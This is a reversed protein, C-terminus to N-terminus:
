HACARNREEPTRGGAATVDSHSLWADESTAPPPPLAASACRSPRQLLSSLLSPPFSGSTHGVPPEAAGAGRRRGWPHPRPLRLASRNARQQPSPSSQGRRASRPSHPPLRQFEFTAPTARPQPLRLGSREHEADRAPPLVRTGSGRRRTRKRQAGRCAHCPAPCPAAPSYPPRQRRGRPAPGRGAAGSASPAGPGGM